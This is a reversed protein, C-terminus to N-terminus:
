TNRRRKLRGRLGAGRKPEAIARANSKGRDM